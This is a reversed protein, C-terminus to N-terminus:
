ERVLFQYPQAQPWTYIRRRGHTFEPRGISFSVDKPRGFSFMKPPNSKPVVLLSPPPRFSSWNPLPRGPSFPPTSLVVLVSYTRIIFLYGTCGPLNVTCCCLLRAPGRLRHPKCPVPRVTVSQRVALGDIAATCVRRARVVRCGCVDVVARLLWFFAEPGAAGAARRRWRPHTTSQRAGRYAGM